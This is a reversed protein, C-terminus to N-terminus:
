TFRLIQLFTILIAIQDFARSKSYQDQFVYYDIMEFRKEFLQYTPTSHILSFVQVLFLILILFEALAGAVETPNFTRKWDKKIKCVNIIVCVAAMLINTVLRIVSIILSTKESKTELM